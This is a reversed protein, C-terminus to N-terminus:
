ILLSFWATTLLLGGIPTMPGYFSNQKTLVLAYLSGSFLLMGSALLTGSLGPRRALPVAVCMLVSHVLHYSSATKWTELLHNSVKNKLGHAGFAGTLIAVGGSVAGVKWWLSQSVSALSVAKGHLM